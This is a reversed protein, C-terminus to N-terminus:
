HCNNGCNKLKLKEVNLRGKKLINTKMITTKPSVLMSIAQINFLSHQFFQPAIKENTKLALHTSHSRMKDYIM